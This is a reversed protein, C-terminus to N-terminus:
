ANQGIPKLCTTLYIVHDLWKIRIGEDGLLLLSWLDICKRDFSNVSVRRIFELSQTLYLQTNLLNRISRRTM